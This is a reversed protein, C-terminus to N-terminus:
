EGLWEFNPPWECEVLSEVNGSLKGGEMMDAVQLNICFACHRDYDIDPELEVASPWVRGDCLREVTEASDYWLHALRDTPLIGVYLRIPLDRYQRRRAARRKNQAKEDESLRVM